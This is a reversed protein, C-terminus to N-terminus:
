WECTVVCNEHGWGVCRERRAVVNTLGSRELLRRRVEKSIKCVETDHNTWDTITAVYSREGVEVAVTGADHFMNWAEQGRSALARPSAAYRLLIRAVTGVSADIGAFALERLFADEDAARVASAGHRMLEGVMPYPYWKGGMLGLGPSHPDLLARWRPSMRRTVEQAASQGYKKVMHEVAHVIPTGVMNGVKWSPDALARVAMM